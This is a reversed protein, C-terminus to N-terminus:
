NSLFIGLSKFFFTSIAILFEVRILSDIKIKELPDKSMNKDLKVTVGDTKYDEEAAAKHKKAEEFEEHGKEIQDMVPEKVDEKINGEKLRKTM